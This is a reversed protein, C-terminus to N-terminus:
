TREAVSFLRHDPSPWTTGRMQLETFFPQWCAVREGLRDGDSVFPLCLAHVLEASATEGVLQGAGLVLLDDFVIARPCAAAIRRLVSADHGMLVLLPEVATAITHLPKETIASQRVARLAWSTATPQAESWADDLFYDREASTCVRAAVDTPMEDPLTSGPFLSNYEHLIELAQAYTFEGAASLAILDLTTMPKGFAQTLVEAHVTLERRQCWTHDALPRKYAPVLDHAALEGFLEALRSSDGVYGCLSAVDDLGRPFTIFGGDDYDSIEDLLFPINEMLNMLQQLDANEPIVSHGMKQLEAVIKEPPMDHHVAAYIVHMVPVEEVFYPQKGDRDSSMALRAAPSLDEIQTNIDSMTTFRKSIQQVSPPLYPDDKRLICPVPHTWDGTVPIGNKESISWERTLVPVSSYKTLAARWLEANSREHVQANTSALWLPQPAEVFAVAWAYCCGAGISAPTSLAQCIQAVEDTTYSFRSAFRLPLIDGAPRRRNVLSLLKEDARPLGTSRGDSKGSRMIRRLEQYRASDLVGHPTFTLLIADNVHVGHRAPILEISLADALPEEIAAPESWAFDPRDSESTSRLLMPRNRCAHYAVSGARADVCFLDTLWNVSIHSWRVANEAAERLLDMVFERDFGRLTMRDVAIDPYARGDVTITVGPFKPAGNKVPIGNLLLAGLGQHFYVGPGALYATAMEHGSADYLVDPVWRHTTGDATTAVTEVSPVRITEALIKSLNLDAFSPRLYLRVKTGGFPLVSEDLTTVHFLGGGGKVQVHLPESYKGGGALQHTWMSLEHAVMFYSFVGIGFQSIPHYTTSWKSMEETYEPLDRLRRGAKAFSERLEYHSMGIGNDQCELYPGTEDQGTRFFIKPEWGSDDTLAAAHSLRQRRYNCADVANQYLERIALTADGYLNTGMLLTQIESVSVQFYVHPLRYSQGEPKLRSATAAVPTNLRHFPGGVQKDALMQDTLQLCLARLTRDLAPSATELSLDLVDGSLAWHSRELGALTTPVSLSDYAMYPGTETPFMRSDLSLLWVLRLCASLRAGEVLHRPEIGAEYTDALEIGSRATDFALRVCRALYDTFGKHAALDDTPAVVRAVDAIKATLGGKDTTVCARPTAAHVVWEHLTRAFKEDVDATIAAKLAADSNVTTAFEDLRQDNALTALLEAEIARMAADVAAVLGVILLRNVDAAPFVLRVLKALARLAREGIGREAWITAYKGTALDPADADIRDITTLLEAIIESWGGQGDGLIHATSDRQLLRSWRDTANVLPGTGFLPFPASSRTVNSVVDLKQRPLGEEDSIQNMRSQLAVAARDLRADVPLSPAIDALAKTFVSANDPGTTVRARDGPEVSFVITTTCGADPRDLTTPVTGSGDRCADFLVTLSHAATKEIEANFRVPVLYSEPGPLHLNADSPVIYSVGNAHYGHGSIYVILDEGSDASLIFEALAEKITNRAVAGGHEGITSAVEIGLEALFEQMRAIDNAVAPSITASPDRYERVGILLARKM